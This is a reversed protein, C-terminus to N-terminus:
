YVYISLYSQLFLLNELLVNRKNRSGGGRRVGERAQVTGERRQHIKVNIGRRLRAVGRRVEPLLVVAPDQAPVTDLVTGEAGTDASGVRSLDVMGKDVVCIVVIVVVVVATAGRTGRRSRRPSVATLVM